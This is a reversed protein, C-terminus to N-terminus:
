LPDKEVMKYYKQKTEMIFRKWETPDIFPNHEPTKRVQKGFTDTQKPHNGLVIDAELGLLSDLSHIYAERWENGLGFQKTYASTLTNLGIGGHMVAKHGSPLDFVYAMTGPTHGPAAYAHMTTNGFRITDGPHILEDVSFWIDYPPEYPFGSYQCYNLESKVDMMPLDAAPLYTRAGYKEQLMRTAGFHDYHGHTHVIWRIDKPDFGLIRISELLLYAAQSYGTDLLLLGEGTDFLHSSVSTNGVYYVNDAILFPETDYLWPSRYISNPKGSM